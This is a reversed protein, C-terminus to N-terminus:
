VYLRKLVVPGLLSQYSYDLLYRTTPAYRYMYMYTRLKEDAQYVELAQVRASFNEYFVLSRLGAVRWMM